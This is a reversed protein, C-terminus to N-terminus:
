HNVADYVKRQGTYTTSERYLLQRPTDADTNYSTLRWIGLDELEVGCHDPDDVRLSDVFPGKWTIKHIAARAENYVKLLVQDVIDQTNLAIDIYIIPAIRGMYNAPKAGDTQKISDWDIAYNGILNGYDDQGILYVFNGEPPIVELTVEPCYFPTRLAANNSSSKKAFTVAAVTPMPSPKYQMVGAPTMLIPWGSFNLRIAEIYERVKTNFEPVSRFETKGKDDGEGLKMAAPLKVDPDATVEILSDPFGCLKLIEEMAEPHTKGGFTAPWFFSKRDIRAAGMNKGTLTITNYQRRTVTVPREFTWLSHARSTDTNFRGNIEPRLILSTIDANDSKDKIVFKAKQGESEQSDSLEASLINAEPITFQRPTFDETKVPLQLYYGSVWPSSTGDGTLTLKPYLKREIGDATFDLTKAENQLVCAAQPDGTTATRNWRVATIPVSTASPAYPLTVLNDYWSATTAYKILAYSVYLNKNVTSNVYTAIKGAKTIKMYSNTSDYVAEPHTYIGGFERGDTVARIWINGWGFPIISITTKHQTTFGSGMMSGAGTLDPVSAFRKRMVWSDQSCTGDTSWWLEMTGDTYLSLVFDGFKFAAYEVGPGYLFGTASITVFFGQNEPYSLKSQHIPKHLTNLMADVYLAGTLVLTDLLTGSTQVKSHMVPHTGTGVVPSNYEAWGGAKYEFMSLSLRNDDSTDAYWATDNFPIPRLMLTGTKPEYWLPNTSDHRNLQKEVDIDRLQRNQFYGLETLETYPIDLDLSFVPPM